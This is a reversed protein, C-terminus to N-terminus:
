TRQSPYVGKGVTPMLTSTPLLLVCYRILTRSGQDLVTSTGRYYPPPHPLTPVSVVPVSEGGGFTFATSRERPPTPNKYNYITWPGYGSYVFYMLNPPNNEYEM